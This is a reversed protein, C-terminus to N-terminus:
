SIGLYAGHRQIHGGFTLDVVALHAAVHLRMHAFQRIVVVGVGVEMQVAGVRRFSVFTGCPDVVRMQVSREVAHDIQMVDVRLDVAVQLALM